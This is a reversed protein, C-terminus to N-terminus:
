IMQGFGCLQTQTVKFHVTSTGNGTEARFGWKGASPRVAPVRAVPTSRARRSDARSLVGPRGGLGGGWCRSWSWCTHAPRSREVHFASCESFEDSVGFSQLDSNVCNVTM